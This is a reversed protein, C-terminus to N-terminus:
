VVATTLKTSLTSSCHTFHVVFSAIDRQPFPILDNNREIALPLVQLLNQYRLL